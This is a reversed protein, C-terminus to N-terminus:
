GKMFNSLDYGNEGIGRGMYLHWGIGFLFLTPVALSTSPYIHVVVFCTVATGVVVKIGGLLFITGVAATLSVDHAFLPEQTAV